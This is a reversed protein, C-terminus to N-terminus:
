GASPTDLGGTGLPQADDIGAPRKPAAATGYDSLRVKTVSKGPISAAAGGFVKGPEFEQDVAYTLGTADVCSSVPIAADKPAGEILAEAAPDDINGLVDTLQVEADFWRCTAGDFEATERVRLIKAKELQRVQALPDNGEVPNKTVKWGQGDTRIYVRGKEGYNELEIGGAGGGVEQTMAYRETTLEVTGSGTSEIGANQLEIDIKATKAAAIAAPARKIAERIAAEDQGPAEGTSGASAGGGAATTPTGAATSATTPTSATTSTTGADDDGGCGAAGAAILLTAAALGLRPRSSRPLRLSM